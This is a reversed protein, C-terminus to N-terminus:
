GNFCGDFNVVIKHKHENGTKSSVLSHLNLTKIFLTQSLRLLSFTYQSTHECGNILWWMSDSGKIKVHGKTVQDSGVIRCKYLGADEFDANKITLKCHGLISKEIVFKPPFALEPNIPENGKFWQVPANFDNVSCQVTLDKKM